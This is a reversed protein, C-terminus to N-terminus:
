RLVQQMAREGHMETSALKRSCTLGAPRGCSFNMTYNKIEAM